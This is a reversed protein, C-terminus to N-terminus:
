CFLYSTKNYTIHWLWLNLHHLFIVSIFFWMADESNLQKAERFVMWSLISLTHNQRCRASKLSIHVGIDFILRGINVQYQRHRGLILASMPGILKHESSIYIYIYICPIYINYEASTGRYGMCPPISLTFKKALPLRSNIIYLQNM